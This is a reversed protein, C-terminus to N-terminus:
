LLHSLRFAILSMLMEATLEDDGYPLKEDDAYHRLAEQAHRWYRAADKSKGSQAYLDGLSYHALAFGPDCYVAQRLSTLSAEWQENYFLVLGRLYHVQPLLNDQEDAQALLAMAEDWNEDDAAQKAKQWLVDLEIKGVTSKPKKKPTSKAKKSSPVKSPPAAKKPKRPLLKATQKKQAQAKLKRLRVSLNSEPPVADIKPPAFSPVVLSPKQYFVAKEFNVPNFQEYVELQPESHGVVLWGQTNLARFFRGVIQTTTEQDFYITVNRCIILDLNM